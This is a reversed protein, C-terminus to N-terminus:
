NGLMQPSSGIMSEGSKSDPPDHAFAECAPLQGKTVAWMEKAWALLAADSPTKDHRAPKHGPMHAPDPTCMTDSM